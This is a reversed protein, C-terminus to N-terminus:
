CVINALLKTRVTAAVAAGPSGEKISELFKLLIAHVEDESSCDYWYKEVWKRVVNL